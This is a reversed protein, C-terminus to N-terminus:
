PQAARDSNDKDQVSYRMTVLTEDLELAVVLLVDVPVPLVAAVLVLEALAAACDSMVENPEPEPTSTLLKALLRALASIEGCFAAM